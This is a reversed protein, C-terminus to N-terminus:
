LYITESEGTKSVFAKAGLSKSNACQVSLTNQHLVLFMKNRNPKPNSLDFFSFKGRMQFCQLERHTSTYHEFMGQMTLSTLVWFFELKLM